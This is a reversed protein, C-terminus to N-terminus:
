ITKQEIEVKESVNQIRFKERGIVQGKETLVNIRWLGEDPNTKLTYGKYGDKGNGKIPYSITFVTKWDGTKEDRRQWEHTIDTKLNIPAFVSSMVYVDENGVKHYVDTFFLTKYWPTKEYRVVYKGSNTKVVSHYVGISRM